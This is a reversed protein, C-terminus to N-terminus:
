NAPATQNQLNPDTVGDQKRVEEQQKDKEDDLGLQKAVKKFLAGGLSLAFGTIVAKAFFNM